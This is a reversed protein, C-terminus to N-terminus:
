LAMDEKNEKNANEQVAKGAAPKQKRAACVLKHEKWHAQQCKSDCYLVGKMNCACAKLQRMAQTRVDFHAGEGCEACSKAFMKQKAGKTQKTCGEAGKAAKKWGETECAVAFKSAAHNPNLALATEFKSMMEQWMPHRQRNGDYSPSTKRQAACLAMADAYMADPSAACVRIDESALHWDFKPVNRRMWLKLASDQKLHSGSFVIVDSFVGSFVAASINLVKVPFALLEEWSPCASISEYSDRPLLFPSGSSDRSAMLHTEPNWLSIELVEREKGRLSSIKCMVPEGAVKENNNCCVWFQLSNENTEHMRNLMFRFPKVATGGMFSAPEEACSPPLAHGGWQAVTPPPLIRCPGWGFDVVQGGFSHGSQSQRVEIWSEVDLSLPEGTKVERVIEFGVLQDEHMAVTMTNAGKPVINLIRTEEGRAVYSDHIGAYHKLFSAQVVDPLDWFVYPDENL